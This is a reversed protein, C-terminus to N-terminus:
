FKATKDEVILLEVAVRALDDDGGVAGEVGQAGLGGAELGEDFGDAEVGVDVDGDGERAFLGAGM